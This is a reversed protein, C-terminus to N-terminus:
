LESVWFIGLSHCGGRQPSVSCPLAYGKLSHHLRPIYLGSKFWSPGLHRVFNDEVPGQAETNDVRLMDLSVSWCWSHLPLLCYAPGSGPTGIRGRFLQFLRLRENFGMFDGLGMFVSLEWVKPAERSKQSPWVRRLLHKRRFLGKM